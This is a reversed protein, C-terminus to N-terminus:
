SGTAVFDHVSTSLFQDVNLAHDISADWMDDFGDAVKSSDFLYVPAQVLANDRAHTGDGTSAIAFWSIGRYQGPSGMTGTVSPNLAAQETVFENYYDIDSSSIPVLDRTIFALHYSEGPGVGTPVIPAAQTASAAALIIFLVCM